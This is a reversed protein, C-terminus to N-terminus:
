IQGMVQMQAIVADRYAVMGPTRPHFMKVQRTPTFWRVDTAGVEGNALAQNASAYVASMNGAPDARIDDAARCMWVLWPDSGAGATACATADPLPINGRDIIARLEAAEGSASADNNVDPWGALFFWTDQRGADPEHV